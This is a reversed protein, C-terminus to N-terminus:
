DETSPVYRPLTRKTQSKEMAVTNITTAGLIKLVHLFGFIATRWLLIMTDPMVVSVWVVFELTEVGRDSSENLSGSSM